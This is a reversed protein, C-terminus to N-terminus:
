TPGPKGVGVRQVQVGRILIRDGNSAIDLSIRRHVHIERLLPYVTAIDQSLQAPGSRPVACDTNLAASFGSPFAGEAPSSSRALLGGAFTFFTRTTTGSIV